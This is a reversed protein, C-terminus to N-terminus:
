TRNQIPFRGSYLIRQDAVFMETREDASQYPQIRLNKWGQKRIQFASQHHSIRMLLHQKLDISHSESMCISIYVSGQRM